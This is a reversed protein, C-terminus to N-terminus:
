YPTSMNQQRKAQVFALIYGNHRKMEDAIKVPNFQIATYFFCFFFILM